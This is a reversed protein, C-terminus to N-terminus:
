YVVTNGRLKMPFKGSDILNQLRSCLEDTSSAFSIDLVLETDNNAPALSLTVCDSQNGMEFTATDVIAAGNKYVASATGSSTLVAHGQKKMSKAVNSMKDMDDALGNAIAFTSIEFATTMISHATKSVYADDRTAALKPIAVAALIGLIVIVFIIEIMTFATRRYSM